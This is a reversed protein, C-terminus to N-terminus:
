ALVDTIDQIFHMTGSEIIETLSGTQNFNPDKVLVHEIISRQATKSLPYKHWESGSLLDWYKQQIQKNQGVLWIEFQVKEHNFVLGIKLKQSKLSKPTIPFYSIDMYGQYFSGVIFEPSYKNSFHTRLNMLYEMLGKYGKPFNESQLQKIYDSIYPTLSEKM